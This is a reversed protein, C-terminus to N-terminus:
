KVAGAILLPHCRLIFGPLHEAPKPLLRKMQEKEDILEHLLIPALVEPASRHLVANKRETGTSVEIM